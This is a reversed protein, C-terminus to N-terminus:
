PYKEMLERRIDAWTRGTPEEALRAHWEEKTLGEPVWNEDYVVPEFRGLLQGHEDRLETPETLSRLLKRVDESVIKSAM